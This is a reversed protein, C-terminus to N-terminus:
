ISVMCFKLTRPAQSTSGSQGGKKWLTADFPFVHFIICHGYRPEQAVFLFVLTVKKEEVKLTQSLLTDKSKQNTAWSGLYPWKIMKWTNGKSAVRQFFPPGYSASGLWRPGEFKAHHRDLNHLIPFWVSSIAFGVKSKKAGGGRTVMIYGGGKM